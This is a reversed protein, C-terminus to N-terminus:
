LGALVADLYAPQPGSYNKLIYDRGQGQRGQGSLRLAALLIGEPTPSGPMLLHQGGLEPHEEYIAEKFTATPLGVFLAELVVYPCPDFSSTLVFVDVRRSLEHWPQQTEPVHEVPSGRFTSAGLEASGGVWVFSMPCRIQEALLAARAFLGPQKRDTLTGCMGVVVGGAGVGEHPDRLPVHCLMRLRQPDLFPPQIMPSAAGGAEYGAAIRRTVVVHPPRRESIWPLYHEPIEHSHLIAKPFFPIVRAVTQNVSNFLIARPRLRDLLMYLFTPDGNYSLVRPAGKAEEEQEGGGEGISKRLLSAKLSTDGPVLLTAGAIRRVMMLAYMSAGAVSDDHDVVVLPTCAAESEPHPPLMADFWDNKRQRIDTAYAAYEGQFYSPDFNVDRYTRGERHGHCCFHEALLGRPLKQLDANLLVYEDENFDPPPSCHGESVIAM